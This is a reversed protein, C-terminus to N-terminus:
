YPPCFPAATSANKFASMRHFSHLVLNSSQAPLWLKNVAHHGAANKQNGGLVLLQGASPNSALVLGVHGKCINTPARFVIIDGVSPANTQGPAFRFSASAASNTGGNYGARALCWNLFAACWATTDGEPTTNTETFFAVIVPNWRNKWGANYAEGDKNVYPLAEFYDIVARPSSTPANALITNAAAIEESLPQDAGRATLTPLPGSYDRYNEVPTGLYLGRVGGAVQVLPGDAPAAIGEVLIPEGDAPFLDAAFGSTALSAAAASGAALFRRRDLM